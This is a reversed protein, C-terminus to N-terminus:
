KHKIDKANVWTVTGDAWRVPVDNDGHPRAMTEYSPVIVTGRGRWGGDVLVGPLFVGAERATITKGTPM